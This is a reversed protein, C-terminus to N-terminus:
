SLSSSHGVSCYMMKIGTVTRTITAGMRDTFSGYASNKSLWCRLTEAGQNVMNLMQDENVLQPSDSESVLMIGKM